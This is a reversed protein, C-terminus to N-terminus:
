NFLLPRPRAKLESYLLRIGTSTRAVMYVNHYSPWSGRLQAHEALKNLQTTPSTQSKAGPQGVLYVAGQNEGAAPM